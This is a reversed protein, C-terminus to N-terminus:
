YDYERLDLLLWQLHEKIFSATGLFKAINVPSCRRQLRKKLLTAPM